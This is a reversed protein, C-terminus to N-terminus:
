LKQIIDVHGLYMRRCCYRRVGLGNLTNYVKQSDEKLQPSHTNKGQPLIESTEGSKEEFRKWNMWPLLQGCTFCRIPQLMIDILRKIYKSNLVMQLKM